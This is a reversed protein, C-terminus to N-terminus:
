TAWSIVSFIQFFQLKSFLLALKRRLGWFQSQYSIVKIQRPFIPEHFCFNDKSCIMSGYFSWFVMYLCFLGCKTIVMLIVLCYKHFKIKEMGSFADYWPYFVATLKSLGSSFWRDHKWFPYKKSFKKTIENAM